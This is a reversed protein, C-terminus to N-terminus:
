ANEREFRCKDVSPIGTAVDQVICGRSPKNPCWPSSQAPTWRCRQSQRRRHGCHRAWSLDTSKWAPIQLWRCAGVPSSNASGPYTKIVHPEWCVTCCSVRGLHCCRRGSLTGRIATQPRLLGCSPFVFSAESQLCSQALSCKNRRAPHRDLHYLVSSRIAFDRTALLAISVNARTDSYRRDRGDPSNADSTAGRRVGSVIGFVANTISSSQDCGCRHSLCIQLQIWTSSSTM